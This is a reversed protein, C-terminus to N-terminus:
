LALDIAGTQSIVSITSPTRGDDSNAVYVFGNLLNVPSRKSSLRCGHFWNSNNSFLM